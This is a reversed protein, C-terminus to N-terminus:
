ATPEMKTNASLRSEQDSRNTYISIWNGWKDPYIGKRSFVGHAVITEHCVANNYIIVLERESRQISHMLADVVPQMVHSPFPNYLYVLNYDDYNPFVSADCNFVKVRNANLRNFNRVAIKTIRESVEIGGIHAFPFELMTRMASGKGCGIDIISDKSTINFDKLVNRLYKNGSPSSPSASNPNLGVERAQIVTLFDLGRVRDALIMVLRAWNHPSFSKLNM